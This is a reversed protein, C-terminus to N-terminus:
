KYFIRDDIRLDVYELGGSKSQVEKLVRALSTLENQATRTTDFYVYWGAVSTVKLDSVIDLVEIKAIKTGTTSEFNGFLDDTFQIFSAPVVQEGLRVPVNKTDIIVPLSAYKAEYDAWAYGNEDILYKHDLIQWVFTPSKEVIKIKIKDPWERIIQFSKVGTVEGLRKQFNFFGFTFINNNVIGKSDDVVKVLEARSVYKTNSFNVSEVRFYSSFFVLYVAAVLCVCFLFPYVVPKIGRKERIEDTRSYLSPQRTNRSRSLGVRKRESRRMM